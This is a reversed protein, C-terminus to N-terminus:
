EAPALRRRAKADAEAEMRIRLSRVIEGSMTGGNYRACEELWQRVDPPVTVLVRTSDAAAKMTRLESIWPTDIMVIAGVYPTTL